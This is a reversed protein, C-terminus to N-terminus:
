SARVSVVNQEKILTTLLFPFNVTLTFIFYLYKSYKTYKLKVRCTQVHMVCLQTRLAKLQGESICWKARQHADNAVVPFKCDFHSRLYKVNKTYKFKVQCQNLM